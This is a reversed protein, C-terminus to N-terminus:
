IKKLKKALKEAESLLNDIEALGRNWFEEKEIDIGMKLFINKPSDSSGASLFEKVKEVFEPNKRVGAQMSKSILLGSAYSYVYFFNRIHPWVVWWNESGESQEVAEGMYSEMVKRFLKGIEEKSLYGKDRFEKHLEQEFKYGAVQRFITNVDDKLKMIILALKLEDDAEREIEQLVFDEMFTSAVEATSTPTSAYIAHQKEKMLEDNIGHGVEHALTLVENLRNDYNLLIYTPLIRTWYVCFAGAHKGKSPYVDINGNKIFDSFIKGFREDLNDLVKQVIEVAEEYSVEKDIKGYPVNREHYKLQKVGFLKAVLKYYRQSIDFRKSVSNIMEDVTQSDIDDNLHRSLDPREMKRLNDDVKKDALIANIEAEAVDLNKRIIDNLAEAASDRIKKNPNDKLSWIESYNKKEKKGNIIIEREEKSLFSELM